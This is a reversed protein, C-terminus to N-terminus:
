NGFSHLWRHFTVGSTYNSKRELLAVERFLMQLIDGSTFFYAVLAVVERFFDGGKIDGIFHSDLLNM